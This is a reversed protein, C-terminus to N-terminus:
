LICACMMSMKKVWVNELCEWLIITYIYKLARQIGNTPAVKLKQHITYIARIWLQGPFFFLQQVFFVLHKDVVIRDLLFLSFCRKVFSISHFLQFIVKDCSLSVYNFKRTSHGFDIIFTWFTQKFPRMKIAETKGNM